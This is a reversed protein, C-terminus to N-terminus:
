ELNDYYHLLTSELDLPQHHKAVLYAVRHRAGSRILLAAGLEPHYARVILPELPVLHIWRSPVLGVAVRELVYYPRVSKGCDHLMAAAILESTALPYEHVIRRAVRCAHARDRADMEFYVKAEAATLQVVAWLDDPRAFRDSLSCVLRYIKGIFSSQM